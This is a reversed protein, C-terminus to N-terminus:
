LAISLMIKTVIFSYMVDRQICCYMLVHFVVNKDVFMDDQYKAINSEAELLKESFPIFERKSLCVVREVVYEIEFGEGKDIRNRLLRVNSVNCIFRVKMYGGLLSDM